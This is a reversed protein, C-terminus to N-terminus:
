GATLEVPNLEEEARETLSALEALVRQGLNDLQAMCAGSADLIAALADVPPLEPLAYDALTAAGRAHPYPYAHEALGARLQQLRAHQHALARSLAPMLGAHERVKADINTYAVLHARVAEVLPRVVLLTRLCDTLRAYEAQDAPEGLAYGAASIRQLTAEVAPRCTALLLSRQQLRRAYVEDFAAQTDAALGFSAFDVKVQAERYLRLTIMETLLTECQVLEPVAKAVAPMEAALAERAARLQDRLSGGQVGVIGTLAGVDLILWGVLEGYVRQAARAGTMKREVEGVLQATSVLNTPGIEDALLQRYEALTVERALAAFDRFLRTAAGEGTFMPPDQERIAALRDRIAPHSAYMTTNETLGHEVIKQQVEPELQAINARVLAPLDDPLRRSRWAAGLDHMAGDNAVSIVAVERLASGFAEAGVLRLAHRDADLEMERLLVSSMVHGVWMLAWSVRRSLWIMGQVAYGLGSLFLHIKRSAAIWREVRLDWADREYVVRAFWHNVRRIVYVARMGLSQSLHGFEHALVGTFQPLTQCAVLPLGITLVLDNGFFSLVGRRLSASANVACTVVIRAPRPAHVANCIKEVFAFLLPEEAPDLVRSAPDPARRALLPKLLFFVGLGGIVFPAVYAFAVLLGKQGAGDIMGANHTAHWVMVWVLAGIIALYVLPLLLMLVAVLVIAVRYLWTSPVPRIEGRFGALVPDALVSAPVATAM